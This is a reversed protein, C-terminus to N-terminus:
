CLQSISDRAVLINSLTSYFVSDRVQYSLITGYTNQPPEWSLAVSDNSKGVLTVKPADSASILISHKM